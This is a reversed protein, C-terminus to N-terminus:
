ICLTCTSRCGAVCVCRCKQAHKDKFAFATLRLLVMSLMRHVTCSQVRWVYLVCVCLCKFVCVHWVKVVVHLLQQLRSLTLAKAGVDNNNTFTNRERLIAFTLKSKQLLLRSQKAFKHGLPTRVCTASLLPNLRRIQLQNATNAFHIKSIYVQFPMFAFSYVRIVEPCRSAWMFRAVHECRTQLPIHTIFHYRLKARECSWVNRHKVLSCCSKKSLSHTAIYIYLRCCM